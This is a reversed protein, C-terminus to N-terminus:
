AVKVERKAEELVERFEDELNVEIAFKLNETSTHPDAYDLELGQFMTYILDVIYGKVAESEGKCAKNVATTIRKIATEKKM